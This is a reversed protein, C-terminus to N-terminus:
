FQVLNQAIGCHGCQQAETQSAVFKALWTKLENMHQPNTIIAPIHEMLYQMFAQQHVTLTQESMFTSLYDLIPHGTM